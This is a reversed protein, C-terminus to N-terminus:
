RYVAVEEDSGGIVIREFEVTEDVTGHQLEFRVAFGAFWVLFFDAWFLDRLLDGVAHAFKGDVAESPMREVFRGNPVM